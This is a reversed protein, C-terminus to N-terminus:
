CHRMAAARFEDGRASMGSYMDLSAAAPALLVSDGPQAVSAAFEVVNDMAEAPDTSETVFIPVQPALQKLADRLIERDAGMLAVARFQASHEHILEDVSAGKLQGGAVWVVTGAGSLASHAAHPNTAKSNDVWDVGGGSHVVAGRHDAVRYADLGDQIHAPTAGQTLAVAAAAAADLVGAAGPPQIRTASALDVPDDSRWRSVLRGGEVGVQGPEPARLTFGIVDDRSTAAVLKTVEPDDAGAVASPARLVKAKDSAYNAFSGHWDLHDDALNLLVGADPVLQTSWHLQFSSLEAVMVDVREEALLADAVAVGINGCAQARKGTDNGCQAMISALMGTTTTKGNTGTVVLWERPAGFAGARDLRFCLEVDGIVELGAQAAEVLLPTDPRWGPSTVVTAFDAFREAAEATTIVPAGTADRVADRGSASDDAVTYEVGLASLMRAAGLGSVGAGAVLVPADILMHGQTQSTM